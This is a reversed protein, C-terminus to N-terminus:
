SPLRNFDMVESGTSNSLHWSMTDASCTWTGSGGHAPSNQSNGSIPAGGNVSLTIDSTPIETLSMPGSTATTSQSYAANFDGMGSFVLDGVPAMGTYDIDAETSTM